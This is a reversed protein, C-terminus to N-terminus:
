VPGHNEGSSPQTHASDAACWVRWMARLAEDFHVAFRKADFVPSALVQQRLRARLASLASINSAHALAKQVYDDPDSAIWDALGANMMLGVGQRAIFAEGALTLVPVGM